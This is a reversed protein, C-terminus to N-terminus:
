DLIVWNGGDYVFWADDTTNAASAPTLTVTTGSTGDFGVINPGGTPRSVTLYNLSNLNRIYIIRGNTATPLTITGGGSINATIIFDNSSVTHNATVYRTRVALSGTNELTTAFSGATEEGIVTNGNKSRLISYGGAGYIFFWNQGSVPSYGLSARFTEAEHFEVGYASGSGSNIAINNTATGDGVQFRINTGLISTTAIGVRGFATTQIFLDRPTGGDDVNIAGYRNNTNNDTKIGMQMVLPNTPDNSGIQFINQYASTTAKSNDSRIDMKCIPNTVGIGVNVADVGTGGLVIANSAGVVANYGIAVSKSNGGVSPRALYGIFTNYNGNTHNYGASDGVAVNYNGTSNFLASAGVAVNHSGNTNNSLANLGMATNQTGSTNLYLSWAGVATNFSATNNLLASSGMATNENGSINEYLSADGFASNWSGSINKGLSNSGNATNKNGNQNSTLAYSGTATNDLGITNSALTGAGLATNTSGSTNNMMSQYGFATNYNGTNSSPTLGGRLAQYGVATNYNTFSTLTSNANGLAQYGVAVAGNGARNTLLAGTGLSTNQTGTKNDKMAETGIAINQIGNTSSTPQNSYLANYGIAINDSNYNSLSNDFSQTFLAWTGIAINRSATSNNELARVGLATNYHGITNNQLSQFGLGINFSGSTNSYLSNYGIGVNNTGSTNNYLSRFGVATLFDGSVNSKLAEKGVAVNSGGTENNLMADKGIAVNNFGGTNSSLAKSGLAVNHQGSTTEKGSQFGIFTNENTTLDDNLGSEFGLFVSGDSGTGIRGSKINNVRFNLAKNDTTGIFHTGDVTSSNGLIGWNNGGGPVPGFTGDGRLVDSSSGSFNTIGLDGTTNTRLIAGNTGSSYNEFRVTGTTHLQATPTTVGIGVNGGATIVMRQTNNTFFLLPGNEQNRIIAEDSLNLGLELGNNSVSSHTIFMKAGTSGHLHLNGSPLNTGIGISGDSTIRMRETNDTRFVLDTADATGIFDNAPNTGNNGGLEWANITGTNIKEWGSGDYYYFGSSGDTQYVLLGTAPTTIASRQAQTMRPVLLGKDTAVLDLISSADPTTTGIGIQAFSYNICIILIILSAIFYIIIKM